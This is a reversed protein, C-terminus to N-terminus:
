GDGHGHNIAMNPWGKFFENFSVHGFAKAIKNLEVEIGDLYAMVKNFDNLKMM